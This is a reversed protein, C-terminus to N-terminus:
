TIITMTYQMPSWIQESESNRRILWLFYSPKQTMSGNVKWQLHGLFQLSVELYTIKELSVVQLNLWQYLQVKITVIYISIQDKSAKSKQETFEKSNSNEEVLGNKSYIIIKTWILFSARLNLPGIQQQYIILRITQSLKNFLRLGKCNISMWNNNIKLRRILNISNLSLSMSASNWSLNVKRGRRRKKKSNKIRMTFSIKLLRSGKKLSWTKNLMRSKLIM